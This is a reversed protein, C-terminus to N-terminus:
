MKNIILSKKMEYTSGYNEHYNTKGKIYGLKTYFNVANISAELQLTEIKKRKAIREIHQMLFTGIGKGQYDPHVFVTAIYDNFLTASGVIKNDLLAVLFDREQAIKILFLPSYENSMFQIVSPPYVRSNVENLTKRILHSVAEADKEEFSRILIM